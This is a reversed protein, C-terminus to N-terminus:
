IGVWQELHFIYDKHYKFKINCITNLSSWEKCHRNRFTIAWYKPAYSLILTGLTFKWWNWNCSFYHNKFISDLNSKFHQKYGYNLIVKTKKKKLTYFHLVSSIVFCIELINKGNYSDNAPQNETIHLFKKFFCGFLFSTFVFFGLCGM